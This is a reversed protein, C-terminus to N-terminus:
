YVQSLSLDLDLMYHPVNLGDESRDPVRVWLWRHRPEHQQQQQQKSRSHAYRGGVLGARRQRVRAAGLRRRPQADVRRGVEGGAVLHRQLRQAASERPLLRLQVAHRCRDLVRVVGVRQPQALHLGAKSDGHACDWRRRRAAQTAARGVHRYGFEACASVDSSVSGIFSSSCYLPWIVPQTFCEMSSPETFAASVNTAPWCDESSRTAAEVAEVTASSLLQCSGIAFSQVPMVESSAYLSRPAAAKLPVIIENWTVECHLLRASYATNALAGVLASRMQMTAVSANQSRHAVGRRVPAGVQPKQRRSTKDHATAQSHVCAGGFAGLLQVSTQVFAFGPPPAAADSATLSNLWAFSPSLTRLLM